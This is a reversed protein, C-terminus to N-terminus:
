AAAGSPLILGGPSVRMSPPLLVRSPRTDRHPGALPTPLIMGVRGTRADRTTETIKQYARLNEALKTFCVYIHAPALKIKRGDVTMLGRLWDGAFKHAQAMLLGIPLWRTDERWASAQRCTGEIFKLEQRLRAYTPGKAPLRALDECCEAASRFSTAMRDFIEKETLAGM